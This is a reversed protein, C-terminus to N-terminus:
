QMGFTIPFQYWSSVPNGNQDIAPTFQPLNKVIRIAEQDLLFNEGKVITIKNIDVKGVADIVFGIYIKGVSQQELAEKPYVLNKRFFKNFGDDGGPFVASTKVNNIQNINQGTAADIKNKDNLENNLDCEYVFNSGTPSITYKKIKEIETITKIDNYSISGVQMGANLFNYAVVGKQGANLMTFKDVGSKNYFITEYGYKKEIGSNVVFLRLYEKYNGTLIYNINDYSSKNRLYYTGVKKNYAITIPFVNKNLKKYNEIDTNNLGIIALNKILYEASATYNSNTTITVTNPIIWETSGGDVSKPNESSIQYDFARQLFQHLVSTINCIAKAERQENLLQQKINIAFLGGQIEVSVGKSEVFSTLKDISVIAKVTLSYSADPLKSESLVEFKQINGNSVSVIEDKVLNDNLIETKSSIFAGFAQEIASRLASQKAEDPTKGQGTVVLTVTKDADQANVRNTFLMFLMAILITCYTTTSNKM